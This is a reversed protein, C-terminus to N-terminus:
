QVYLELREVPTDENNGSEWHCNRVELREGPVPRAMKRFFWPMDPNTCCNNKSGVCQKGDWLVDNYHYTTHDYGGTNGSECYYHDGVFSPPDPGPTDACPCNFNPYNGDDSLGVTYTWVHKRPTGFTISIGDMYWSNISKSHHVSAQFAEPSGRQYGSVQGCIKNYVVGQTSYYVSHCGGPIPSQCVHKSSGPMVIRSWPFPCSGGKTMDLYAVRMWGGKVGGCELEMDCYVRQLTTTASRIWYYGSRDRSAKNIHYIDACSKGQLFSETGIKSYFSYSVEEDDCLVMRGVCGLLVLLSWDFM